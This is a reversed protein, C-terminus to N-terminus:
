ELERAVTTTIAAATISIRLSHRALRINDHM